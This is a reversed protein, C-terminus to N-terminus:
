HSSLRCLRPTLWPKADDFLSCAIAIGEDTATYPVHNTLNKLNLCSGKRLAGRRHTCARNHSQSAESFEDYTQPALTGLKVQPTVM